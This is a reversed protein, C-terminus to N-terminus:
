AYTNEQILRFLREAFEVQDHAPYADLLFRSKTPQDARGVATARPSDYCRLKTALIGTREAPSMWNPVDVVFHWALQDQYWGYTVPDIASRHILM